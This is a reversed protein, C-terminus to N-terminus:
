LRARRGQRAPPSRDKERFAERRTRPLDNELNPLFRDISLRASRSEPFPRRLQCLISSSFGIVYAELSGAGYRAGRVSRNDENRHPSRARGNRLVSKDGRKLRQTQVLEQFIGRNRAVFAADKGDEAVGIGRLQGVVTEEGELV